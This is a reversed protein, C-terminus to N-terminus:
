RRRRGLLGALGRPLFLVLALIVFGLCAQALAFAEQKVRMESM